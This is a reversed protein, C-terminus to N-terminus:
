ALDVKRLINLVWDVDKQNRSLKKFWYEPDVYETIMRTQESNLKDFITSATDSTYLIWPSIKGSCIHFVALGPKVNSFYNFWEIKNEKGWEELFMITREVARAPTETKLRIKIFENFTRDSAWKNLPTGKQLLWKVFADVDDVKLDICYSSFKVFGNFYQSDVFDSYTKAKKSNTGIKYFLQYCRFALQNQKADKNLHRRKKECIHVALSNERVFSKKCYECVFKM